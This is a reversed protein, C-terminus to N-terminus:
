TFSSYKKYRATNLLSVGSALLALGASVVSRQKFLEFGSGGERVRFAGSVIEPGQYDSYTKPAYGYCGTSIPLVM